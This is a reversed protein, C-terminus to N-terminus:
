PRYRLGDLIVRIMDDAMSDKSRVTMREDVHQISQILSLFAGALLTNHPTWIQGSKEAREFIGEVPHLLTWYSLDFLRKGVPESLAPLDSSLMRLLNMAPQSLIWRAAAQLQTEYDDGASDIAQELGAKHRNLSREVVKAYLEEKGGPAHYYLSAQKIDLENAIHRLKVAAYGHQMFLLEAADLVRTQADSPKADIDSM